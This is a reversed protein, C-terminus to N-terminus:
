GRALGCRQRRRPVAGAPLVYRDKAVLDPATEEIAPAFDEARRDLEIATEIGNNAHHRRAKAKWQASLPCKYGM